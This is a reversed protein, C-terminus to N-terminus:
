YYGNYIVMETESKWNPYEKNSVAWGVSIIDFPQQRVSELVTWNANWAGECRIM